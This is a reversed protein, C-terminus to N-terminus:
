NAEVLTKYVIFLLFSYYHVEVLLGLKRFFFLYIFLCVFLKNEYVNAFVSASDVRFGSYFILNSM